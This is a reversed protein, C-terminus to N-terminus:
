RRKFLSAMRRRRSAWAPGATALASASAQADAEMTYARPPRRGPLPAGEKRTRRPPSADKREDVLFLDYDMGNERISFLSFGIDHAFRLPSSVGFVM